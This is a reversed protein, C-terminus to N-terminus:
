SLFRGRFEDTPVRCHSMNGSIRYRNAAVWGYVFDRIPRPILIFLGLWRWPVRLYRALRLSASSKAFAQGNEILVISGPSEGIGVSSLAAKGATSRNSAFQLKADREHRLVFNVSANCFNCEGDFIVLPPAM